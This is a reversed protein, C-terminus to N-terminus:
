SSCSDLLAGHNNSHAGRIPYVPVAFGVNIVQQKVTSLTVHIVINLM